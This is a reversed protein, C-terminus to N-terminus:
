KIKSIGIKIAENWEQSNYLENVPIIDHLFKKNDGIELEWWGVDHYKDLKFGVNHYIGVLKFGFGEHFGVSEPNPLTIGALVNTTGQHKLIYILATYLGTAVGRHQFNKHVYVSLEKTCEYAKRLRHDGAYAYGALAGDIECVLWPLKEQYQRIRQMYAEPGPVETEFSVPTNLIFPAYIGLIGKADKENVSRIIVQRDM